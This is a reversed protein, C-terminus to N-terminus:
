GGGRRAWGRLIEARGRKQEEWRVDAPEVGAGVGAAGGEAALEDALAVLRTHLRASAPNGAAAEMGLARLAHDLNSQDIYNSSLAVTDQPRPPPM